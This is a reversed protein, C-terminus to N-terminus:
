RMTCRVIMKFSRNEVTWFQDPDHTRSTHDAVDIIGWEFEQNTDSRNGVSCPDGRICIAYCRRDASSESNWGFSDNLAEKCTM